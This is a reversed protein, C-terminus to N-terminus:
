QEIMDILHGLIKKYLRDGLIEDEIGHDINPNDNVEMVIVGNDTQKLDVGYLGDGVLRAAQLAVELVDAPVKNVPLAKHRGDRAGLTRAGHNYIQWHGKAMFYQCAFLPENNLIGIRWDFESPVFEQCIVIESKKLLEGTAKLFEQPSGVKMVGRSFSGDPIKVVAPYLIEEAVTKETKRDVIVTSPVPVKNAQLLEHLFVKNCCRIISQTDDICPIGESEAKHAFRFTHHNIATTERILLAEYELLYALDQRDIFEIFMGMEKGVKAFHRLAAPNSPPMRETKDHLIALWHKQKRGQAANRWALGTFKDLADQFVNGMEKPLTAMALPDISTITWKGESGFKIGVTMLPFRFLDFLRRALPELRPNEVRGFYIIYSRAFPEAAGEKFHKELLGNLEPLSQQYHRKWTLTVINGVSPICRMGRAEALLSVYYGKGLYDYNNCLNIVKLQSQRRLDPGGTNAIFDTASMSICGPYDPLGNGGKDTVLVFKSASGM